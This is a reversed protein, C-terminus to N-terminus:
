NNIAAQKTMSKSKLFIAGIVAFGATIGMLGSVLLIVPLIPWVPKGYTAPELIQLRPKRVLGSKSVAEVFELEAIKKPDVEQQDKQNPLQTSASPESDPSSWEAQAVTEKYSALLSSVITQANDPRSSYLRVNYISAESANQRVQLNELTRQLSQEQSFDDFCRLEYLKNSDLVSKVFEPQTMLKEHDLQSKGPMAPHRDLYFAADSRYKTPCLWHYTAGAVLSLFTTAALIALYIVIWMGTNNRPQPKNVLQDQLNPKDFTKRPDRPM